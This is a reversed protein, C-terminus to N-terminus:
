LEKQITKYNYIECNFVLAYRDCRSIMPQHGAPSLDVISLRKHGLFMGSEHWIGQSDPGRHHIAQLMKKLQNTNKSSDVSNNIFGAIGCM